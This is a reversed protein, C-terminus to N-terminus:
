DLVTALSDIFTPLVLTYNNYGILENSDVPKHTDPNLSWTVHFYKGNGRQTTGNVSVVLAEIGDGSDAYGVVKIDADEPPETGEPVGFKVTVHRAIVKQYKPPYKELLEERSEESLVYATYM